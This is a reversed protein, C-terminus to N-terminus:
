RRAFLQFFRESEGTDLWVGHLDCRDFRLEDHFAVTMPDHCSPCAATGWPWSTAIYRAARIVRDWHVRHETMERPYWEGCGRRCALRMNGDAALENDCRPCVGIQTDGRYPDM